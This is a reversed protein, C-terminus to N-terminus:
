PNLQPLLKRKWQWRGSRAWGRAWLSVSAKSTIAESQLKSLTSCNVILLVAVSNIMKVIYTWVAFSRTQVPVLSNGSECQLLGMLQM